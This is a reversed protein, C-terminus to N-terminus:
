HFNCSCRGVLTWAHDFALAVMGRRLAAVAMVRSMVWLPRAQPWKTYKKRQDRETLACLVSRRPAAVFTSALKRPWIGPAGMKQSLSTIGRWPMPHVSHTINPKERRILGFRIYDLVDVVCASFSSTYTM